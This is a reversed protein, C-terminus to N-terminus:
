VRIVFPNVTSSLSPGVRFGTMMIKVNAGCGFHSTRDSCVLCLRVLMTQLESVTQWKVFQLHM